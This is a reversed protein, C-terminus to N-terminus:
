GAMLRGEEMTNLAAALNELMTVVSTSATNMEDLADFAGKLDGQSSLTLAAKAAALM